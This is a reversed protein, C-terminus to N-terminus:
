SKGAFAFSNTCLTPRTALAPLFPIACEINTFSSNPYTTSKCKNKPLFILGASITGGCFSSSASFRALSPSAFSSDTTPVNGIPEKSKSASRTRSNCSVCMSSSANCFVVTFAYLAYWFVLIGALESDTARAFGSISHPGCGNNQAAMKRFADLAPPVAFVVVYLFALSNASSM